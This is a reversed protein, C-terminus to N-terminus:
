KLSLVFFAPLSLNQANGWSSGAFVLDDLGDAWMSRIEVDDGGTHGTLIRLDLQQTIVLQNQEFYDVWGAESGGLLGNGAKTVVNTFRAGIFESETFEPGKVITIGAGCCGAITQFLSQGDSYLRPFSIAGNLNAPNPTAAAQAGTLRDYVITQNAIFTNGYTRTVELTAKDLELALEGENLQALYLRDRDVALEAQGVTVYLKDEFVEVTGLYTSLARAAVVSLPSGKAFVWLGDTTTVYLRDADGRVGTIPVGLDITQVIPFDAARDRALVFLSGQYSGLYIRDRDAYVARTSVFSGPIHDRASVLELRNRVHHIETDSNGAFRSDGSYTATIIRQNDAGTGAVLLTVDCFGSGNTLTATCTESGDSVTVSVDGSPTGGSGSVIFTVRVSQNVTSEDPEDSTIEITSAAKLVTVTAKQTIEVGGAVATITKTEAVTSGFTFTAQGNVGSTATAPSITNGNGTSSLTVSVGSLLNENGDRVSVTITSTQSAVIISPPSADVASKLASPIRATCSVAFGLEAMAGSAVTVARPNAGDLACNSAVGSLRVRHGGAAVSTLSAVSNVGIPQSSGGDIAFTYGDPDQDAGTTVTTIRLTGAEPPPEACTVFFAVTISASAVITVTRPNDESVECNAAVGSLGVVHSGPTLGTLTAAASVGLPGRDVGDLTVTYGDADTSPGGISSTVELSGTSPAASCAVAFTVATAEGATVSVTRPNDSSVTCNAAVGSLQITHSGAAVETIRLTAASGILQAPEADVQVTYGDPDPQDGTTSTTVELTGTTPPTTLDGGGCAHVGLASLLFLAGIGPRRHSM